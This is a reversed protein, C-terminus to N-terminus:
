LSPQRTATFYDAGDRLILNAERTYEGNTQHIVFPPYIRLPSKSDKQASVVIRKAPQGEKSFIPFLCINGAKKHLSYLIEDTAEARNIMYFRGYPRLMKLCYEIWNKLCFDHHNHALAKSQNPSPMDNQAYPPNSVVFDFTCNEFESKQRIDINKYQLFDFNNAKASLNSLEVLEKQLEAGFIKIGCDRFRQALCLSIAGTGSGVDLIQQKTKVKEIFSSLLVADSSARYGDIPQFIKIKKDLLYDNTYDSM